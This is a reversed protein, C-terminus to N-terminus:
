CIKTLNMAQFLVYHDASTSGSSQNFWKYILVDSAMTDKKMRWEMSETRYSPLVYAHPKEDSLIKLSKISKM